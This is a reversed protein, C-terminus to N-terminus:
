EAAISVSLMVKLGDVETIAVNALLGLADIAGSIAGEIFACYFATLNDKHVVLEYSALPLEVGEFLIEVDKIAPKGLFKKTDPGFLTEWVFEIFSVQLKFDTLQQPPITRTYASGARFGLNFAVQRLRLIDEPNKLPHTDVVRTLVSNLLMCIM